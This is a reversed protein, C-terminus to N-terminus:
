RKLRLTVEIIGKNKGEWHRNHIFNIFTQADLFMTTGYPFWMNLIYPKNINTIATIKKDKSINPKPRKELM